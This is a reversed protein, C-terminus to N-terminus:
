VDVAIPIGEGITGAPQTAIREYAIIQHRQIHAHRTQEMQIIAYARLQDPIEEIDEVPDIDRIEVRNVPTRVQTNSRIRNQSEVRRAIRRIWKLELIPQLKAESAQCFRM